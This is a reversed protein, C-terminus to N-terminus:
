HHHGTSILWAYWSFFAISAVGLVTLAAVVYVKSSRERRDLQGSTSEDAVLPTLGFVALLSFWQADTVVHTPALAPAGGDRARAKGRWAYRFQLGSWGSYGLPLIAIRLKLAGTIELLLQPQTYLKTSASEATRDSPSYTEPAATVQALRASTVVANTNPDVISVADDRVDIALIPPEAFAQARHEDLAQQNTIRVDEPRAFLLCRTAGASEYDGSM